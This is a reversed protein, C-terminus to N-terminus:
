NMNNFNLIEAEEPIEEIVLVFQNSVLNQVTEILISEDKKIYVIGTLHDFTGIDEKGMSNIVKIKKM